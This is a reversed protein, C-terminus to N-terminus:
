GPPYKAERRREWSHRIRKIVECIAVLWVLCVVGFLLDILHRINLEGLDAASQNLIKLPTNNVPANNTATPVQPVMLVAPM